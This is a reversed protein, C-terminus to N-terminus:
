KINSYTNIQICKCAYLCVHLCLCVRAYMCTLGVVCVCLCALGVVEAERRKRFDHTKGVSLLRGNVECRRGRKGQGFSQCHCAHLDAVHVEKLKVLGKRHPSHRKIKRREKERREAQEGAQGTTCQIHAYRINTCICVRMCTCVYGCMCLAMCVLLCARVCAYIVYMCVCLTYASAYLCDCVHARLQNWNCALPNKVKICAHVCACMRVQICAHM